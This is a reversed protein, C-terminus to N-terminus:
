SKEKAWKAPFWKEGYEVMLRKGNATEWRYNNRRGEAHYKWEVFDVLEDSLNQYQAMPFGLLEEFGLAKRYQWEVMHANFKKLYNANCGRGRQKDNTMALKESAIVDDLGYNHPRLV